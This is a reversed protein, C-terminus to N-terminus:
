CYESLFDSHVELLEDVMDYIKEVSLESSTHPDFMAARYVYKREKTLFAKEVMQHVAIHKLNLSALEDPIDGVYTKKVGQIDAVCKVEVNATNPLNTIMGDNIVNGWFVFPTNTHIANMIYAGYESTPTHGLSSDSILSDRLENWGAIQNVCRTLYEDIPIRYKDILEPYKEKIFYNYYESSHESSETIYCGFLRTMEMRVLDPYDADYSNLDEFIEDIKAKIVPYLDNGDKDEISLLWAMHNIGAIDWKLTDIDYLEDLKLWKFLNPVCVQVSHCLGITDINTHKQMYGTLISMPNTYNLFLARPCVEEMIKAYEDMVELTRLARMIGGIGCTDAITQQLGYKKPIEFDRITAPDYGGVQIANVVFKADRLAETPDTYKVITASDKHNKNITSLIQYSEELRNSDIDFLAYEFEELGELMISDGLINKAFITSGAGLFVIKNKM